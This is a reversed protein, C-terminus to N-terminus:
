RHSAFRYSNSNGTFMNKGTSNCTLLKIVWDWHPPLHDANHLSVALQAQSGSQHTLILANGVEVEENTGLQVLGVPQVQGPGAVDGIHLASFDPAGHGLYAGRGWSGGVAGLGERGGLPAKSWTRPRYRM